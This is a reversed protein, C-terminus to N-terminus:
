FEIILGYGIQPGFDINKNFLGYQFGAGILLKHKFNLKIDKENIIAGELSNIYVYPNNTKVFISNDETLGTTLDLPVEINNILTIPDNNDFTTEGNLKLWKDNYNFHITPISDNDYYITDNMHITDIKVTGEIKSIYDLSKKLRSKLEKIEKETVGIRENLESESLIYTNKEYLLEKNKLEIIKLSDISANYNQVTNNLQQQMNHQKYGMFMIITLLIGIIILTYKKNM